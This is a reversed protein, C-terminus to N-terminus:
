SGHAQMQAHRSRFGCDTLLVRRPPEQNHAPHATGAPRKASHKNPPPPPLVPLGARGGARLSGAPRLPGAQGGAVSAHVLSRRAVYRCGDDPPSPHAGLPARRSRPGHPPLPLSGHHPPSPPLPPPPGRGCQVTDEGLLTRLRVLGRWLACCDVGKYFQRLRPREDTPARRGTAAQLGLHVFRLPTCDGCERTSQRSSEAGRSECPCM